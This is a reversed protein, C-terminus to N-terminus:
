AGGVPTDPQDESQKFIIFTGQYMNVPLNTIAEAYESVSACESISGGKDEIADKIDEFAAEINQLNEILNNNM